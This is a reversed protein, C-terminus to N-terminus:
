SLHPHWSYACVGNESSVWIGDPTNICLSQSGATHGPTAVSASVIVLEVDCDLLVLNDDIEKDMGGPVYWAWQMPHTSKFTDVEKRQNLVKANPFFPGKPERSARAPTA